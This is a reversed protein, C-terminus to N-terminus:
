SGDRGRSTDAADESKQRAEKKLFLKNGDALVNEGSKPEFIVSWASDEASTEMWSLRARAQIAIGMNQM